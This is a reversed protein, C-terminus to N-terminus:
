APIAFNVGINAGVPSILMNNIGVVNGKLDFLPGGSNGRNIATDTQIFRDYATGTGLNRQVASIIGATVTSGLGLPHETRREPRRLAAGGRLDRAVVRAGTLHAGRVVATRNNVLIEAGM